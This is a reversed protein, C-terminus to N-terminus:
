FLTIKSDTWFHSTLNLGLAKTIRNNLKASLNAGMLELRPITLKNLPAVRTKSAVFVTQIKGDHTLIRLYTTSAYAKVSADSFSHLEIRKIDKELVDSLYYRPVKLECLSPVENCWKNFTTNLHDPLEDDWDVSLKWVDQMLCKVRLVFPSLYGVPDFIRGIAQLLFRKTNIRNSLFTVLKQSDFYLSDEKKDWSIGLVKIPHNEM